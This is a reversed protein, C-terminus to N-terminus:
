RERIPVPQSEPGNAENSEEDMKVPGNENPKRYPKLTAFCIRNRLCILNDCSLHDAVFLYLSACFRHQAKQAEKHSNSRERLWAFRM